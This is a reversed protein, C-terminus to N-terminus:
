RPVQFTDGARTSREGTAAVAVVALAVALGILTRRM